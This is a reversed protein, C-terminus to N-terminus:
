IQLPLQSRLRDMRWQLSERKPAFRGERPLLIPKGELSHLIGFEPIRGDLSAAVHWKLDIGPAILNRDMAWHMNPCLAVGNRPDDDGAESFPHIHAAEV